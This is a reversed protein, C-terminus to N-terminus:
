DKKDSLHELESMSIEDAKEVKKALEPPVKGYCFENWEEETMRSISHARNKKIKDTISWITMVLFILAMMAGGFLCLLRFGPTIRIEYGFYDLSTISSNFGIFLNMTAVLLMIAGLTIFNQNRTMFLAEKNGKM